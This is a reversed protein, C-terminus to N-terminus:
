NQFSSPFKEDKEDSELIPEESMHVDSGSPPFDQDGAGFGGRKSISRTLFDAGATVGGVVSRSVGLQADVDKVGEGINRALPSVADSVGAVVGKATDTIGFQQNLNSFWGGISSVTKTATETIRVQSNIDRAKASIGLKSDVDSSIVAISSALRATSTKLKSIPDDDDEPPESPSVGTFVNIPDVDDGDDDIVHDINPTGTTQKPTPSQLEELLNDVDNDANTTTPTTETSPSVKVDKLAEENTDAM